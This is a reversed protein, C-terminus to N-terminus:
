PKGENAFHPADPPSFTSIHWDVQDSSSLKNRKCNCLLIRMISRIIFRHSTEGHVASRKHDGPASNASQGRRGTKCAVADAGNNQFRRWFEALDARTDLDAWVSEMGEVIEADAVRRARYRDIDILKPQHVTEAGLLDDVHREVGREACIEAVRVGHHVAGVQM